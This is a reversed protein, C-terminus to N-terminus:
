LAAQPGRKKDKDGSAGTQLPIKWESNRNTVAVDFRYQYKLIKFFAGGPKVSFTELIVSTSFNV